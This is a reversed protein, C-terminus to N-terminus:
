ESYQLVKQKFGDMTFKGAKYETIWSKQVSIVQPRENGDLNDTMLVLNIYEGPRVTTLSDGYNALAETLYGKAETLKQLLKQRDAEATERTRQAKAVAADIKKRLEEQDIKPPKPPKPPKPASTSSDRSTGAAAKSAQEAAQAAEEAAQGSIASLEGRMEALSQSLESLNVFPNGGSFPFSGSFRFFGLTSSPIVSVAGQGPLYFGNINRYRWGQQQQDQLVYSLTTSLIGTMIEMEQRSKKVDFSSRSEQAWCLTALLTVTLMGAIQRKM